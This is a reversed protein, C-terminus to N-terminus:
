SPPPALDSSAATPHVAESDMTYKHSGDVANLVDDYRSGMIDAIATDTGIEALFRRAADQEARWRTTEVIAKKRTVRIGHPRGSRVLTCTCIDDVVHLRSM